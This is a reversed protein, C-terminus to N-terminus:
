GLPITQKHVTDKLVCKVESAVRLLTARDGHELKIFGAPDRASLDNADARAFPLDYTLLM